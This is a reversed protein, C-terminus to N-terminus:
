RWYKIPTADFDRDRLAFQMNLFRDSDLQFPLRSARALEEAVFAWIIFWVVRVHETVANKGAKRDDESM